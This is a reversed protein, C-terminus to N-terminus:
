AFSTASTTGRKIRAAHPTGFHAPMLLAGTEACHALIDHRTRRAKDPDVCFRSNWRWLPVQVPNHLADGSFIAMRGAM